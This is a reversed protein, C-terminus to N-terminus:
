GLKEKLAKQCHRIHIKTICADAPSTANFLEDLLILMQEKLKDTPLCDYVISFTARRSQWVAGGVPM